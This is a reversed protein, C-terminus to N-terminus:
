LIIEVDDYSYFSTEIGEGDALYVTIIEIDNTGITKIHTSLYAINGDITTGDSLKVYLYKGSHQLEEFQEFTLM